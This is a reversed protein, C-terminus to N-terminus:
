GHIKVLSPVITSPFLVATKEIWAALEDQFLYGISSITFVLVTLMVLVNINFGIALVNLQPLTRGLLATVLNALFVSLALPASARIGVSFGHQVLGHLHMLWSEEALVGGAPYLQFSDICCHFFQRHGGLILFLAMTLYSLLQGIVPTEEDTSPDSASAMDLGALNSVIQGGVQLGSLIIMAASGLLMGLLLEMCIGIVMMPLSTPLETSYSMLLPTLALSIMLMVMAKVQMPISAGRLPPMMALMPGFRSLVCFFTWMPGYLFGAAEPVLTDSDM